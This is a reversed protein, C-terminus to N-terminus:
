VDSWCIPCLGKISKPNCKDKTMGWVRAPPPATHTMDAIKVEADPSRAFQILQKRVWGSFNPIRSAIIMSQEDLSITKHHAM